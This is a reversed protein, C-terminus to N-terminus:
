KCLWYIQIELDNSFAEGVCKKVEFAYMTWRQYVGNKRHINHNSLLTYLIDDRLNICLLQYRVGLATKNTPCVLKKKYDSM